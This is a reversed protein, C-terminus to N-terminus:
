NCSCNTTYGCDVCSCYIVRGNVTYSYNYVSCAFVTLSLFLLIGGLIIKLMM